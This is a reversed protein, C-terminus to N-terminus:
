QPAAFSFATEVREYAQDGVEVHPYVFYNLAGSNHAPGLQLDRGVSFQIRDVPHAGFLKDRLEPHKKAESADIPTWGVDPLYFKVWCHYGGIKGADRDMPIPFGIEFRAPINEHRALSTFLAHFDTCNGYRESCAWYTDGNGWGTGVKKYEMTDVVHDYIKRARVALTDDEGFGIDAIVQDVVEGDVPVRENPKLFQAMRELEEDSYANGARAAIDDQVIPEREVKYTIRITLPERPLEELRAHWFRNGYTEETGFEGEVPSDVEVSLVEQGPTSQAVPLFIDVPGAQEGMQEGTKEARKERPQVTAEYQFEILRAKRETAAAQEDGTEKTAASTEVESAEAPSQRTEPEHQCGAAFLSCATLAATLVVSAFPSAFTHSMFYTTSLSSM